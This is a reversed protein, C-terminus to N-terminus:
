GDTDKTGPGIPGAIIMTPILGTTIRSM